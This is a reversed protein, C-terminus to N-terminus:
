EIKPLAKVEEERARDVPLVIRVFTQSDTATIPAGNVKWEANPKKIRGLLVARGLRLHSSLDFNGLVDHRMGTYDRGGAAQHLTLMRVIYAQDRRTPDYPTQMDLLEPNTNKTDRKV